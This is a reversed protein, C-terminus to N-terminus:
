PDLIANSLFLAADNLDIDSDNDFDSGATDCSDCEEPSTAEPGAMCRLLVTFDHENVQGDRDIDFADFSTSPTYVAIGERGDTLNFRFAVQGANNFGSRELGRENNGGSFAISSVTGGFLSSGLRALQILQGNPEWAYLGQSLLPSNDLLAQFAVQDANNLAIAHKNPISNSSFLRNNFHGADCPVAQGARVIANLTSERWSYLGGDGFIEGAFASFLLHGLDNIAWSPGFATFNGSHSGDPLPAPDGEVAITQIQDVADLVPTTRILRGSGPTNGLFGRCVLQSSENMGVGIASGGSSSLSINFNGTVLRPGGDLAIDLNDTDPNLRLLMHNQNPADLDVALACTGSNNIAPGQVGNAGQFSRVFKSALDQPLHTRAILNMGTSDGVYMGKRTGNSTEILQVAFGVQGSNNITPTGDLAQFQGFRGDGNPAPQGTEAIKEITGQYERFLGDETVGSSNMFGAFFAVHGAESQSPQGHGNLLIDGELGVQEGTHAVVEASSGDVQTKVIGTELGVGNSPIYRASFAIQGADNLVPIGFSSFTGSVDPLQDGVWLVADIDARLATPAVLVMFSIYLFLLNSKLVRM